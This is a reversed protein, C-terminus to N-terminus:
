PKKDGKLKGFLRGVGRAPLTLTNGLTGADHSVFIPHSTTGQVQFPVGSSGQGLSAVARVEGLPGNGAHLEAHMHFDLDNSASITGAGTIPGAEAMAINLDDLRIGEPAVRVKCNISQILTDSSNKIGGLSAMGGVWTAFNFGAIEVDSLSVLGTIVPRGLPGDVSLNADLSGGRLSTGPPLPIGLNELLSEMGAVGVRQGHFKLHIVVHELRGNMEIPGAMGELTIKGGKPTTLVITVPFASDSSIDTALVSTERFSQEPAGRPVSGVSVQGNDAKLERVSYNTLGSSSNPSPTPTTESKERAGLSAYNWEGSASRLAHVHPEQLTLSNVRLTHSFLLPLVEVGAALSKAQLFPTHSFAEDDAISIDEATLTRTFLSFHLHGIQVKRGLASSAASEIAPRYHNVNLSYPVGLLLLLVVGITAGAYVVWKRKIRPEIRDM